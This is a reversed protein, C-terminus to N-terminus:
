SAKRRARVAGLGGMGALLMWAAAPLPVDSSGGTVPGDQLEVLKAAAFQTLFGSPDANFAALDFLADFDGAPDSIPRSAPEYTAFLGTSTIINNLYGADDLQQGLAAYGTLGGYTFSFADDADEDTILVVTKVTNNRWGASGFLVGGPLVSAVAALADETGGFTEGAATSLAAALTPVSGTIAQDLELCPDGAGCDVGLGLSAEEYTVLGAHVTNISADATLGNIFTSINASLDTFEGDMSGSQDIVFMIDVDFNAAMAPAAGLSAALAGALVTRYM